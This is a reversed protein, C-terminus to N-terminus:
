IRLSEHQDIHTVEHAKELTGPHRPLSDSTIADTNSLNLTHYPVFFLFAFPILRGYNSVSM